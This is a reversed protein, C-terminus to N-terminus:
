EEEIRHLVFELPEVPPLTLLSDDAVPHVEVTAFSGLYGERFVEVKYTGPPLSYPAEVPTQRGTGQEDVFLEAQLPLGNEDSAQVRLFGEFYCIVEKRQGRGVEVIRQRLGYLPHNFFVRRRGAPVSVDLSDEGLISGGVSISGYPEAKLILVGEGNIRTGVSPLVREYIGPQITVSTFAEASPIPVPTSTALIDRLAWWGLVVTVVVAIGVMGYLMWSRSGRSAAKSPEASPSPAVLSEPEPLPAEPSQTEFAELAALMEDASQFRDDPTKALAKMVVEALAEPIGSVFQTPPAFDEEVIARMIIYATDEAQFPTQGTLTEYLAMGVAYLDSRHDVRATSRVHEPSLYHLTGIPMASLNQRQGNKKKALGFDTIKVRGTETILITSPNIAGHVLGKRHAYSLGQLLQRFLPLARRAELRGKRRILLELTPGEVYETVLFPHTPEDYFADVALINPHKLSALISAERGFRQMFAQDSALTPKLVKISRVVDQRTDLVKYVPGTEEGNLKDLIRYHKINQGVVRM